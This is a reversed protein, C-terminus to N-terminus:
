WRGRASWVQLVQARVAHVRRAIEGLQRYFAPWASRPYTRLHETAPIGDLLSQRGAPGVSGSGPLCVERAARSVSVNM